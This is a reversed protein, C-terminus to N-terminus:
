VFLVSLIPDLRILDAITHYGRARRPRAEKNHAVLMDYRSSRCGGDCHVAATWHFEPGAKGRRHKSVRKGRRHDDSCRMRNGLLAYRFCLGLSLRLCGRGGGRLRFLASLRLQGVGEPGLDALLTW